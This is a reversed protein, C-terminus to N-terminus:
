LYYEKIVGLGPLRVHCFFRIDWCFQSGANFCRNIQFISHFILDRHARQAFEAGPL